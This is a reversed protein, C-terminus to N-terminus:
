EATKKGKVEEVLSSDAKRIEEFREKSIILIKGKEHYEHTNKDRFKKLVKVKM